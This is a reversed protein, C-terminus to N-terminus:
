ALYPFLCVHAQIRKGYTTVYGNFLRRIKKSCNQWGRGLSSSWQATNFIQWSIIQKEHIIHLRSFNDDNDYLLLISYKPDIRTDDVPRIHSRSDKELFLAFCAFKIKRAFRCSVEKWDVKLLHTKSARTCFTHNIILFFCSWM